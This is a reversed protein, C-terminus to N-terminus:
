FIRRVFSNRTESYSKILSNYKKETIEVSEFITMVQEYQLEFILDGNLDLQQIEQKFKAKKNKITDGYATKFGYETCFWDRVNVASLYYLKEIKDNAIDCRASIIIAYSAVEPYKESRMGYVVSGQTLHNM